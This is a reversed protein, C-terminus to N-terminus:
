IKVTNRISECISSINELGAKFRLEYVPVREALELYQEMMLQKREADQLSFCYAHTLIAPFAEVPLLRVIEVAAEDSAASTRKLVFLADLPVPEREPAPRSPKQLGTSLQNKYLDATDTRLRIEFPLPLACAESGYIEFAVADDAWLSYGHNNLAFALTSKGTGSVACLAIAGRHTLVASAHLVEVGLVQLMMPLVSRHYADIILERRVTPHPIAKVIGTGKEYCYSALNPFHMFYGEGEISGYACVNGDQEYWVEINPPPPDPLGPIEAAGNTIILGPIKPMSEFINAVSIM